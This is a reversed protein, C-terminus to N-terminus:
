QQRRCLLVSSDLSLIIRINNRLYKTFNTLAANSPQQRRHGTATFTPAYLLGTALGIRMSWLVANHATVVTVVRSYLSARIAKTIYKGWVPVAQLVEHRTALGPKVPEDSESDVKNSNVRNAEGNWSSLYKNCTETAPNLLEAKEM